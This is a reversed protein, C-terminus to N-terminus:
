ARDDGATATLMRIAENRETSRMGAKSRAVAGAFCMFYASLAQVVISSEAIGMSVEGLDDPM